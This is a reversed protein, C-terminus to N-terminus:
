IVAELDRTAILDTGTGGIDRCLVDGLKVPAHAEISCIAIMCDHIKGKPIPRKTKVPLLPLEGGAIRVTSTLMRMPSLFENEAYILGNPCYNGDMGVIRDHEHRVTIGCGRPCSICTIKAKKM